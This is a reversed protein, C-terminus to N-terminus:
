MQKVKKIAVKVARFRTRAKKITDKYNEEPEVTNEGMMKVLENIRADREYSSKPQNSVVKDIEATRKSFLEFGQNSKYGIKLWDMAEDTTGEYLDALEMTFMKKLNILDVIVDGNKNGKDDRITQIVDDTDVQDEILQTLDQIMDQWYRKVNTFFTKAIRLNALALDLCVLSARSAESNKVAEKVEQFLKKRYFSNMIKQKVLKRKNRYLQNETKKYDSLLTYNTTSVDSYDFGLTEDACSSFFIGYVCAGPIKYPYKKHIKRNLEVTTKNRYDELTKENNEIDNTLDTIKRANFALRKNRRNRKALWTRNRATQEVQDKNASKVALRSQTVLRSTHKILKHAEKKMKKAIDRTNELISIGDMFDNEDFCSVADKIWHLANRSNVEFRQTTTKSTRVLKQYNIQLEAVKPQCRFNNCYDYALALVNALNGLESLGLVIDYNRKESEKIAKLTADSSQSSFNVETLGTLDVLIENTNLPKSYIAKRLDDASNFEYKKLVEFIAVANNYREEQKGSYADTTDKFIKDYKDQLLNTLYGSGGVIETPSNVPELEYEAVAGLSKDIADSVPLAQDSVYGIIEKALEDQKQPKPYTQKPAKAAHDNDFDDNDDNDDDDDGLYDGDDDDDDDDGTYDTDDEQDHFANVMDSMRSASADNLKLSLFVLITLLLFAKM